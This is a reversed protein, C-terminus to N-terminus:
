EHVSFIEQVVEELFSSIDFYRLFFASAKLRVEVKQAVKDVHFNTYIDVRVIGIM